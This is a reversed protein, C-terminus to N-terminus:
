GGAPLAAPSAPDSLRKEFWCHTHSRDGYRPIEAYGSGRYM